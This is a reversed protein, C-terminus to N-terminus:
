NESRVLVPEAWVPQNCHNVSSESKNVSIFELRGGETVPVSVKQASMNKILTGSGWLVKGNLKISMEFAAPAENDMSLAGQDDAGLTAHIGAIVELRSFIGEPIDYGITVMGTSFGKEFVKKIMESNDDIWLELPEEQRQRGLSSNLIMPTFRYPFATIAPVSVPEIQTLDIRSLKGMDGPNIAGSYISLLTYAYDACVKAVSEAAEKLIEIVGERDGAHLKMAAPITIRRAVRLSKLYSEYLHFVIEESTVGLLDPKYGSIKVTFEPRSDHDIILQIAADPSFQPHRGDPPTIWEALTNWSMGYPGELSHGGPQSSDQLVHFVCGLFKAADKVRGENLSQLILETYKDFGRIGFDRVEDPKAVPMYHFQKEDIYIMYPAVDDRLKNDPYM